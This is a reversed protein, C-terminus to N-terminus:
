WTFSQTAVVDGTQQYILSVTFSGTVSAGTMTVTLYDGNNVFKNGALDTYTISDVDTVDQTEGALLTLDGTLDTTPFAYIDTATGKAIVLRFASPAKEPTIVGFTIKETTSTAKTASTFSGTPTQNGPGGFGMVMVYLVAALVVTIAVMLITAIVPSVASRSKWNKKMKMM